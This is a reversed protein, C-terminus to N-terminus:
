LGDFPLGIETPNAVFDRDIGILGRSRRIDDDLSPISARLHNQVVAFQLIIGQRNVLAVPNGRRAGLLEGLERKVPHSAGGGVADVIRERTALVEAVIPDAWPALEEDEPAQM